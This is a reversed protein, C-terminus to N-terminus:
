SLGLRERYEPDWASWIGMEVLQEPSTRPVPEGSLPVTVVVADQVLQRYRPEDVAMPVNSVTTWAAPFLM